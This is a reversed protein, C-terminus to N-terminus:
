LVAAENIIPLTPMDMTTKNLHSVPNQGVIATLGTRQKVIVSFRKKVAKIKHAV